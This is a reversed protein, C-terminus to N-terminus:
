SAHTRPLIHANPRAHAQAAPPNRLADPESRRVCAPGNVSACAIVTSSSFDSAGASISARSGCGRVISGSIGDTITSSPVAPRSRLPICTFTCSSEVAGSTFTNEAGRSRSHMARRIAPVSTCGTTTSPQAEVEEAHASHAERRERRGAKSGARHPTRRRAPHRGLRWLCGAPHFPLLPVHFQKALAPYMANFRSIYDGGYQPRFRSAPSRSAPAAAAAAARDHRRPQTAHEDIPLGRLGDNGGFELVVIQPKHALVSDIRRSATRPPKAASAKTSSAIAIARSRRPPAAPRRSLQRRIRHRLRRHPQRRFLRHRPSRRDRTGSSDSRHLQPRSSTGSTQAPKRPATTQAPSRILLRTWNLHSGFRLAAGYRRKVANM